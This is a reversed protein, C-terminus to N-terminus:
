WENYRIYRNRAGITNAQLLHTAYLSNLAEAQQTEFFSQNETEANYAKLALLASWVLLHHHGVPLTPEDADDVMETAQRFYRYSVDAAPAALFEVTSGRVIYDGETEIVDDALMDVVAVQRLVRGNSTMYHLQGFDAPMDYSLVNPTLTLTQAESLLFPWKHKVLLTDQVSNLANKVNTLVTGDDEEEDMWALVADQLQKFTM